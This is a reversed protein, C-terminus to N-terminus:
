PEHRKVLIVIAWKEQSPDFGLEQPTFYKGGEKGKGLLVEALVDHTDPRVFRCWLKGDMVMDAKWSLDLYSPTNGTRPKWFCSVEIVGKDVRFTNTQAPIDGAGVFQGAWQPQWIPSVWQILSSGVKKLKAISLIKDLRVHFGEVDAGLTQLEARLEEIPLVELMDPDTDLERSFQDLWAMTQRDFVNSRKGKM